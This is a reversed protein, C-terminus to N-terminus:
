TAFFMIPFNNIDTSAMAINRKHKQKQFCLRFPLGLQQRETDVVSKNGLGCMWLSSRAWSQAHLPNYICAMETLTWSTERPMAWVNKCSYQSTLTKQAIRREENEGECLYSKSSLRFTRRSGEGRFYFDFQQMKLVTGGPPFCMGALSSRIQPGFVSHLFNQWGQTLRMANMPQAGPRPQSSFLGTVRGYFSTFGIIETAPFTTPFTLPLFSHLTSSVPFELPLIVRHPGSIRFLIVIICRKVFLKISTVQEQFLCFVQTYAGFSM